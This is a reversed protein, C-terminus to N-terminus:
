LFYFFSLFIFTCVPVLVYFSIFMNHAQSRKGLIKIKSEKVRWSQFDLNPEGPQLPPLQKVKFMMPGVANSLSSFSKVFLNKSSLTEAPRLYTRSVIYGKGEM